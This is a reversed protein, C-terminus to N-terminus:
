PVAIRQWAVGEDTTFPATTTTLTSLDTVFMTAESWALSIITQGDPSLEYAIGQGGDSAVGLPTSSPETTLTGIRLSDHIGVDDNGFRQQYVIRSGDGVWTANLEDDAGHFFDFRTDSMLSGDPGIEAVHIRLGSHNGAEVNHMSDFLLRRGDPSWKADRVDFETQLMRETTIALRTLGSGDRNVIFLAWGDQDRGRFSLQQGDPPRWSPQTAEFGLDLRLSPAGDTPVLTIVGLGRDRSGVAIVDGLPSWALSELLRYEGDLRRQDSGDPNAIWLTSPATGSGVRVFAFSTGQRSFWWAQEEGAGGILLRPPAYVSERGYIDGRDSYTLMGNAALGFPEPLRPRAGIYVALAAIALAAILAAVMLQRWPLRSAPTSVRTSVADMPIWREPFTWGPRQRRRATVMLVDDIYDPYPGAVLDDLIQRLDRELRQGSTM